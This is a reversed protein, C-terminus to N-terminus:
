PSGIRRLLARCRACSDHGKRDTDRLSNSFAMVCRRDVCHALGLLHGLEHVAQKLTREHFLAGDEETTGRPRLRPLAVIARHHRPDALGFVFTLGPVYPDAEILALVLAGERPPVRDLVVDARYQHCGADWATAPVEEPAALMCAAGFAASLAARLAGLVELPVTGLPVLDITM